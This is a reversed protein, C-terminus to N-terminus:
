KVIELSVHMLRLSVQKNLRFDAMLHIYEIRNAATVVINSGGPKLEYVQLYAVAHTLILVCLIIILTEVSRLVVFYMVCKHYM